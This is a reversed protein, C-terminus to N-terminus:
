VVDNILKRRQHQVEQIMKNTLLQNSCGWNQKKGGTQGTTLINNTTCHDVLFQNLM